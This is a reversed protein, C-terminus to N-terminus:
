RRLRATIVTDVTVNIVTAESRRQAATTVDVTQSTSSLSYATKPTVDVVTAVDEIVDPRRTDTLAVSDTIIRNLAILFSVNDTIGVTGSLAEAVAINQTQDTIGISDQISRVTVTSTIVQDELGVTATLNRVGPASTAVNVNDVLGVDDVRSSARNLQLNDTLNITSSSSEGFVLTISTTDTLGLSDTSTEDKAQSTGPDTLGLNDSTSKEFAAVRDVVDTLALNDNVIRELGSFLNTSPADTFGINDTITEAFDIGAFPDTIGLADNVTRTVDSVADTTATDTLALNNSIAVSLAVSRPDTLGLNDNVVISRDVARTDSLGFNDSPARTLGSSLTKNFAVSVAVFGEQTAGSDPTLVFTRTGTAGAVPRGETATVTAGLPNSLTDTLYFDSQEVMVTPTKYTGHGGTRVAAACILLTDPQTTTITPADHNFGNAGTSNASVNVPTTGDVGTLVFLTAGHEEDSVRTFTVTQAGAVTVPRTWVKIHSDNTGIDATERLTWTGATGTPAPLAAATYFNNTHIAVLLDDVQTGAGTVLDFTALGVANASLVERIAPGNYNAVDAMELSDNVTVTFAQPETYTVQVAIYDWRYSPDTTSSGNRGRILVEFTGNLLDNRTWARDATIDFDNITLTTPEAPNALLEAGVGVGSVFAQIKPQAVGATSNVRYNMRLQVQNITSGTPILSDFGFNQGRLYRGDTNKATLSFVAEVGNSTLIEADSTWTGSGTDITRATPLVFGTVPM